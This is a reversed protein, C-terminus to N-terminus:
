SKEKWTLVDSPMGGNKKGVWISRPSIYEWLTDLARSSFYPSTLRFWFDWRCFDGRFENKTWSESLVLCSEWSSSFTYIFLSASNRKVVVQQNCWRYVSQLKWSTAFGHLDLADANVSILIISTTHFVITSAGNVSCNTQRSQLFVCWLFMSTDGWTALAIAKWNVQTLTGLRQM